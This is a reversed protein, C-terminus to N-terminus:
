QQKCQNCVGYFVLEHRQVQGIAKLAQTDLEMVPLDVDYIKGCIECSFHYHINVDADFHIVHNAGCIEIAKGESVFKALNRYVTALSLSPNEAKLALYIQEAEPHSKTGALYQYIQERRASYKEKM